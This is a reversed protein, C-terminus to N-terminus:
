RYTLTMAVLAAVLFMNEHGTITVFALLLSLRMAEIHIIVLLKDPNVSIHPDSKM